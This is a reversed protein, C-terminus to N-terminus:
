VGKSFNGNKSFKITECTTDRDKILNFIDGFRKNKHRMPHNEFMLHYPVFSACIIKFLSFM